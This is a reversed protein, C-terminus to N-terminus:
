YLLGFHTLRDTSPIKITCSQSFYFALIFDSKLPNHTAMMEIVLHKVQERGAVTPAETGQECAVNKIQSLQCLITDDAAQTWTDPM